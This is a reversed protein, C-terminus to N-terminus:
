GGMAERWIADIVPDADKFVNYPDNGASLRPRKSPAGGTGATPSKPAVTFPKATAPAAPAAAKTPKYLGTQRVAFEMISEIPPLSTKGTRKADIVMGKLIRGCIEGAVRASADQAINRKGAKGFVPSDLKDLYSEARQEIQQVIAQAQQQQQKVASTVFQNKLEANESRMQKLMALLKPNVDEMEAEDLGLDDVKPSAAAQTEATQPQFLSVLDTNEAGGLAAYQEVLMSAAAQASEVTKFASLDRGIMEGLQRIEDAATQEAQESAAQAATTDNQQQQQPTPEISDTVPTPAKPTTNEGLLTEIPSTGPNEPTPMPIPSDVVTPTNEELM